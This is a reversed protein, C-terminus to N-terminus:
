ARNKMSVTGFLYMNPVPGARLQNSKAYNSRAGFGPNPLCFGERSCVGEAASNGRRQSEIGPLATRGAQPFDIRFLARDEAPGVICSTLQGALDSKTPWVFCHDFLSRRAITRYAAGREL